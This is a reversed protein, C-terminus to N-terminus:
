IWARTQAWLKTRMEPDPRASSIGSHHGSSGLEVALAACSYPSDQTSLAALVLYHESVPGVPIPMGLLCTVVM